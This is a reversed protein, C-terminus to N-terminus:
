NSREPTDSTKYSVLKALPQMPHPESEGLEKEVAQLLAADQRAIEATQQKATDKQIRYAPVVALVLVALAVVISRLPFAWPKRSAQLQLNWVPATQREGAKHISERFVALPTEVEAIRGKCEDCNAVHREMEPTGGSVLWESIQDSTLHSNM